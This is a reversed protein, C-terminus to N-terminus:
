RWNKLVRKGWLVLKQLGESYFDNSSPKLWKFMSSKLEDDSSFQTGHPFEKPGFFQIDSLPHRDPCYPPHPLQEWCLQSHCSWEGKKTAKTDVNQSSLRMKCFQIDQIWLFKRNNLLTDEITVRIVALILLVNLSDETNMMTLSGSRNEIKFAKKVNKLCNVENTFIKQFLVHKDYIIM